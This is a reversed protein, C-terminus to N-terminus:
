VQNRERARIYVSVRGWELAALATEYPVVDFGKLKFSDAHNKLNSTAPVRTFYDALEIWTIAAAASGYKASAEQAGERRASEALLKLGLVDQVALAWGFAKERLEKKQFAAEPGTVADALKLFLRSRVM